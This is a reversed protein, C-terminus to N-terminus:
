GKQEHKQWSFCIIKVFNLSKYPPYMYVHALKGRMPTLQGEHRPLNTWMCFEMSPSTPNVFIYIETVMFENKCCIRKNQFYFIHYIYDSFAIFYQVSKQVNKNLSFLYALIGRRFQALKRRGYGM